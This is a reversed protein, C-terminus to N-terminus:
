LPTDMRLHPVPQRCVRYALSHMTLSPLSSTPLRCCVKQLPDSFVRSLWDKTSIVPVPEEPYDIVKKGFEKANAIHERARTSFSGKPEYSPETMKSFTLTIPFRIADPGM